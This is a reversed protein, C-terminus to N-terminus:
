VKVECAADANILVLKIEVASATSGPACLRTIENLMGFPVWGYKDRLRQAIEPSKVYVDCRLEDILVPEDEGPPMAYATGLELIAVDNGEELASAVQEADTVTTFKMEQM